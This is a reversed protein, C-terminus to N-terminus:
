HTSEIRSYFALLHQALEDPSEQAVFHGSRDIVVDDVDTAVRAMTQRSFDGFGGEGGAGVALVPIALPTRGLQALEAGERVMSRYRGLSGAWGGPAAYTRLFEDIDAPLVAARQRHYRSDFFEREHGKLLM